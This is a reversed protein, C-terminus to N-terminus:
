HNVVFRKELYIIIFANTMCMYIYMNNDMAKDFLVKQCTQCHCINNSSMLHKGNTMRLINFFNHLYYFIFFHMLRIIKDYKDTLCLLHKINRFVM